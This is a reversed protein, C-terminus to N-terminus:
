LFTCAPCSAIKFAISFEEEFRTTFASTPKKPNCGVSFAISHLFLSIASNLDNMQIYADMLPNIFLDSQIEMDELSKLDHITAYFAISARIYFPNEMFRCESIISYGWEHDM